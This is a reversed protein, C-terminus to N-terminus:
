NFSKQAAEVLARAYDMEENISEDLASMITEMDAMIVHAPAHEHGLQMAALARHHGDVLHGCQSVVIPRYNGGTPSKLNAAISAVKADDFEKQVIKLSDLKVNKSVVDAGVKAAALMVDKIQPMDKRPITGGPIAAESVPAKVTMGTFSSGLKRAMEARRFKPLLRQALKHVAKQKSKLRADISARSGLSLEAYSKGGLLRKRFANKAAAKARKTLHAVDARKKLARRRAVQIKASIRRMQQARKLRQAMTLTSEDLQELAEYEFHESILSMIDAAQSRIKAPLGATFSKLDKNSAYARMKSASMGSVGSSKDREGASHIQIDKFDFEKGNYKMLQNILSMRDAGVVIHVVDYKGSLQKMMEFPNKAVHTELGFATQVLQRKREPPLPNKSDGHTASLFIIPKSHTQSAIAMLTAAVKAHGVTPPNMRGFTVTAARLARAEFVPSLTPKVDIKNNAPALKRKKIKEAVSKVVDTTMKM